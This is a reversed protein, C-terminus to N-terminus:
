PLYKNEAEILEAEKLLRFLEKVPVIQNDDEVGQINQDKYLRRTLAKMALVSARISHNAWIVMSINMERFRETPTKYYTTPVLIVPGRNKWEKVFGEIESADSKKSHMLIADAGAELYAEARKMAEELGWGAIFAEVRAVVLFDPDKLTDKCAQIKLSFEKIDALPQSRGDHLSNTKPFLKDELCAGAIGIQELKKVLRRANNFNGFGTDADMLIPIDCADNMFELVELVQTWSAENCDRVGLQASMSLGSGWIAKFGSDEAIKASLGSHAEMLFELQNSLLMQKLVSSKKVPEGSHRRKQQLMCPYAYNVKRSEKCHSCIFQSGRTLWTKFSNM